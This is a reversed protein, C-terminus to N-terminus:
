WKGWFTQDADWSGASPSRVFFMGRWAIRGMLEEGCADQHHCRNAASVNMNQSQTWRCDRTRWTTALRITPRRAACTRWSPTSSAPPKTAKTTAKTPASKSTISRPTRETRTECKLPKKPTSSCLSSKPSPHPLMPDPVYQFSINTPASYQPTQETTPSRSAHGGPASLPHLCLCMESVSLPTLM